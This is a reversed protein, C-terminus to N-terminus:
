IFSEYEQQAFRKVLHTKSVRQAGDVLLATKGALNQKWVLIERYAKREFEIASKEM